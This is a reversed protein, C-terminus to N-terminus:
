RWRRHLWLWQEPFERVWGEIISTVAQMTAQVDIKGNADRPLDLPATVDALFTNRDSRRVVRIGRIPSEFRRALRAVLPNAKCKRGFFMVDVGSTLHQDVLMGIHTGNKLANALRLPADLETPILTAMCSTRLNLIAENIPAINPPRYLVYCDFGALPPILAPLEWNGIHAAFFITPKAGSRVQELQVLAARDYTVDAAGPQEPDDIKIRDLHAFEATVRGLGDWLGTLIQEIEAASKEPFAAQLNARGVRHVPLWPGVTRSLCGMVDAVRRRDFLRMSWLWGVAVRGIISNLIVKIPHPKVRYYM